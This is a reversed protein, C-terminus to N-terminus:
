KIETALSAPHQARNAVTRRHHEAFQAPPIRGISSHPRVENFDPQWALIETRAQKLTEFWHENLCENRFRGNLSEIYGNQIPRGPDILIDRIGRGQAWAIFARSTFDPGNGTRVPAPYGRIRAAQDLLRVVYQGGIGYDM